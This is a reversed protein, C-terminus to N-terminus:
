PTAELPVSNTSLLAAYAEISLGLNTSGVYFFLARLEVVGGVSVPVIFPDGSWGRMRLAIPYAPYQSAQWAMELIGGGTKCKYSQGGPNALCLAFAHIDQGGPALVRKNPWDFTPRKGRSLAPAGEWMATLYAKNSSQVDHIQIASERGYFNFQM